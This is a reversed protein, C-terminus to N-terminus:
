QYTLNLNIYYHDMYQENFCVICLVVFHIVLKQKKWMAYHYINHIWHQIFQNFINQWQLCKIDGNLSVLLGDITFKFKFEGLILIRCVTEHFYDIGHYEFLTEFSVAPSEAGRWLEIKPDNISFVFFSLFEPIGRSTSKANAVFTRNRSSCSSCKFSM